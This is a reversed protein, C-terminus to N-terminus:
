CTKPEKPNGVYFTNLPIPGLWNGYAGLIVKHHMIAEVVEVCILWLREFYESISRANARRSGTWYVIKLGLFDLYGYSRWFNLYRFFNLQNSDWTCIPTQKIKVM